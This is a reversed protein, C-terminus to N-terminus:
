PARPRPPSGRARARRPARLPGPHRGRRAPRGLRRSEARDTVLGEVRSSASRRGCRTGRSRTRRPSTPRACLRGPRSTATSSAIACCGRHARRRGLCPPARATMADDGCDDDRLRPRPLALVALGALILVAGLLGGAGVREDLVVVGLVTATLPEALVLTTVESADLSRLGRAFLSYALATPVIGLYLALALGDPTHLWATDGLLLVPLLLVAGLGFSAGMVAVPTHGLRLLRKAVITYTAYGLGSVLALAIGAASLSADTASALSLVAVGTTALATAVLWTRGPWAGDLVRELIGAFVPGSGIAVIAGVAVGTDAVAQFFALQYVAVGAGALLVQGLPWRGRFGGSALAMAALISGGVLIRSAGVTMPTSGEPGLAQATGTTGFLIAAILVQTRAM